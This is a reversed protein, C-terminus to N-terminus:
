RSHSFISWRTLVMGELDVGQGLGPALADENLRRAAHLRIARFQCLREVERSGTLVRDADVRQRPQRARDAM